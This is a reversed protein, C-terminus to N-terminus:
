WRLKVFDTSYIILDKELINETASDTPAFASTCGSRLYSSDLCSYLMCTFSTTM